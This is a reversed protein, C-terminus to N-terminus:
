RCATHSDSLAHDKCPVNRNNGSLLHEKHTKEQKTMRFACKFLYAKYSSDVFVYLDLNKYRDYLGTYFPM